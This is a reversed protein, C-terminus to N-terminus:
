MRNDESQRVNKIDTVTIPESPPILLKCTENLLAPTSVSFFFFLLILNFRVV